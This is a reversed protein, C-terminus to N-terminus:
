ENGHFGLEELLQICAAKDIQISGQVMEKQGGGRINAKTKLIEFLPRVDKEASGLAFQIEKKKCAGVFVIQVQSHHMLYDCAKRVSSKQSAEVWEFWYTCAPISQAKCAILEEELQAIRHTKQLSEAQLKQLATFGKYSHVSLAQSMALLVDAKKRSDKLADMGCLLTCRTGSRHPQCSCFQILGIQGTTHVHTGCCACCDVNGIKVLRIDGALAKKSRYAISEDPNWIIEIPLDQWIVENAKAEIDLCDHWTLKGNFDITMLGQVEGKSEMHFGVNEYGFQQHILGSVIHEGSHNQSLRFRRKKDIECQVQAGVPMPKSVFVTNPNGEQVDFVQIKEECLYIFGRDSPQGGGEPYFGDESFTLVYGDKTQTCSLVEASFSFCDPNTYYLAEKNM